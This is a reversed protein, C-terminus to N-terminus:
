AEEAQERLWQQMVTSTRLGLDVTSRFPHKRPLADLAEATQRLMAVYQETYALEREVAARRDEPELLALLFWRVATENRQNRNAEGEILWTRIEDHGAPTVAYTRSNRAGEGVVEVMGAEQLRALEPYIQSHSAHWATGLSVDFKQALEYGTAPQVALLGLLAHRLSM